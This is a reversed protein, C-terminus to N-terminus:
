EAKSKMEETTRWRLMMFQYPASREKFVVVALIM